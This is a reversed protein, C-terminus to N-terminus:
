DKQEKVEYPNSWVKMDGPQIKSQDIDKRTERQIKRYKEPELFLPKYIAYYSALGIAAVIGVALVTGRIGKQKVDRQDFEM